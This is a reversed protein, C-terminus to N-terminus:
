AQTIEFLLIPLVNTCSQLRETMCKLFEPNYMSIILIGDENEPLKLPIESTLEYPLDGLNVTSNNYKVFLSTSSISPIDSIIYSFSYSDKLMKIINHILKIDSVENRDRMDKLIRERFIPTLNTSTKFVTFYRCNDLKRFSLRGYYNGTIHLTYRSAREKGNLCESPTKMMSSHSKKSTRKDVTYNFPKALDSLMHQNIYLKNKEISIPM